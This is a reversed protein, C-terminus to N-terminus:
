PLHQVQRCYFSGQPLPSSPCCFCSSRGCVRLVTQSASAVRAFWLFSSHLIQVPFYFLQPFRVSPLCLGLIGVVEGHMLCLSLKCACWCTNLEAPTFPHTRSVSSCCLNIHIQSCFYPNNRRFGWILRKIRSSCIERLLCDTSATYREWISCLLVENYRHVLDTQDVNKRRVESNM